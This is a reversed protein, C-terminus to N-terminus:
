FVFVFTVTYARVKAEKTQNADKDMTDLLQPMNLKLLLLLGIMPLFMTTVQLM